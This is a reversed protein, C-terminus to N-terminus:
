AKIERYGLSPGFKNPTDFMQDDIHEDAWEWADIESNFAQDIERGAHVIVFTCDDKKIVNM